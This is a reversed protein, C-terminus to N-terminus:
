KGTYKMILNGFGHYAPEYSGNGNKEDSESETNEEPKSHEKTEIKLLQRLTPKTKLNHETQETSQMQSTSPLYSLGHESKELVRLSQTTLHNIKKNMRNMM